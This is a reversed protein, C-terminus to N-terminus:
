GRSRFLAANEVAWQAFTYPPRGTVQEVTSTVTYGIPPTNGHIWLFYEIVEAPFGEARWQEVAQERTLEVFPIDRQLVSAIIRVMHRPTLVEPGTITYTQGGHGDQTLAVLAVAAIDAEHVIATKRDAFAQHVVGEDRISEAWDLAGTMFEVPQLFAWALASSEVAEEFSGKEGGMLVTVRQVGAKEAMAMIEYGTQLPAYDDGGFKILHLGSIGELAPELTEPMTLDGKIVEVGDPFVARAPNRTLARVEHGADVLQKVLHRGVNGTAGTVLIKM